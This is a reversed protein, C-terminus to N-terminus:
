LARGHDREPGDGPAEAPKVPVCAREFEDARLPFFRGDLGLVVFFGPQVEVTGGPVDIAIRDREGHFRATGGNALVWDIIQTASTVTGDWQAAHIPHRLLFPAVATM